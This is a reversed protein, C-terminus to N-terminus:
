GAPLRILFRGGSDDPLAEVEGAAARALRRALALGLGAGVNGNERGAQGRNGPEFIAEREDLAVGPGDDDVSYVVAGNRRALTIRVRRRSYLCANEVVPQLVREALEADVGVRLPGSPREVEVALKREAALGACAGVVEEAVAFADATGHGSTAEQRAAAVLADVTRALQQASRQVVGLAARYEESTRERRLALEVEASLRSLPTRLEHSLEASFTQERRLSASLRDLLGDLTAALETLEDRPEGLAFRRDLDRESWAAAQRTMVAVPRLSSKLLWRAAFFVVLLLAAGLALSGLLAARRTEEYPALSIGTVVTGLRRGHAVVPVAYLRVDESPVEAFRSSGAALRQAAAGLSSTRAPAELVTNGSFIWVDTDLAADDPAEAVKLSNGSTELRGLQAAARARLLDDAGGALNRALLLNFGVIMAALAAGVAVLVALLLRRRIGFRSM